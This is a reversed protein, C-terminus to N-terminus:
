GEGCLCISAAELPRGCEPIRRLHDLPTLCALEMGLLNMLWRLFQSGDCESPGKSNPPQVNKTWEGSRL